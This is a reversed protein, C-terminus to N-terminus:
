RQRYGMHPSHISDLPPLGDDDFFHEATTGWFPGNASLTLTELKGKMDSWRCQMLTDLPVDAHM